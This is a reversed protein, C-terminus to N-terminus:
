IQIYRTSPLVRSSLIEWPGRGRVSASSVACWRFMTCRSKFGELTISVDSEWTLTMSKPRALRSTVSPTLRSCVCERGQGSHTRDLAGQGVHSWLLQPPLFHVRAGVAKGEADDEVLHEGAHVGKPLRSGQASRRSDLGLCRRRLGMVDLAGVIPQPLHDGPHQGLLGVATIVGHLLNSDIQQLQDLRRTRCSRNGRPGLLLRDRGHGPQPQSDQGNKEQDQHEPLPIEQARRLGGKFRFFVRDRNKRQLLQTPIGLLLIKLSPSVSAIMMRSLLILCSFTM